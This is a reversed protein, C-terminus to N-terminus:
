LSEDTGEGVLFDYRKLITAGRKMGRKFGLFFRNLWFDFFIACHLWLFQMQRFQPGEAFPV